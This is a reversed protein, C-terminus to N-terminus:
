EARPDAEPDDEPEPTPEPKVEATEGNPLQITINPVPMNQLVATMAGTMAETMQAAMAAVAAETGGGTMDPGNETGCNPCMSSYSPLENGCNKCKKKAASEEPPEYGFRRVTDEAALTNWQPERFTFARAILANDSTRQGVIMGLGDDLRIARIESVEEEVNVPICALAGTQFSQSSDVAQRETDTVRGIAHEPHQQLIAETLVGIRVTEGREEIYEARVAERRTPVRTPPLM